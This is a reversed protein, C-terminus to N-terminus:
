DDHGLRPYTTIIPDGFHGRIMEIHSLLEPEPRFREHRGIRLDAFQRHRMQELDYGGPETALVSSEDMRLGTLRSRMNTTYGIKICENPERIYYVVSQADLADQRANNRAAIKEYDPGRGALTEFVAQNSLQVQHMELTGAFNPHTLHRTM